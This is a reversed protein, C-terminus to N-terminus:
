RKVFRVHIRKTYVLFWAVASVVAWALSMSLYKFFFVVSVMNADIPAAAHGRLMLLTMMALANALVFGAYHKLAARSDLRSKLMCEFLALSIVSPFLFAICSLM